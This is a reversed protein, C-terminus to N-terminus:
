QPERMSMPPALVESLVIARRWDEPTLAPGIPRHSPAAIPTPPPAVPETAQPFARATTTDRLPTKTQPAAPRKKLEPAQQSAHRPRPASRDPAPRPTRAPPTTATPRAVTPPTPRGRATSPQPQATRQPARVEVNAPTSGARNRANRLRLEELQKQRLERLRAQRAAAEASAPTPQAPRSKQQEDDPDRGTRLQEERKRMAEQRKRNIAAQEQSKRIMWQLFSLGIFVLLVWFHPQNWM